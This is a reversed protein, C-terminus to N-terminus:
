RYIFRKFGFVYYHYRVQDESTLVEWQTIDLGFWLDDDPVDNDTGINTNGAAIIEVLDVCPGKV